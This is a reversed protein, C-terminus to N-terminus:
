LTPARSYKVMATYWITLLWAVIIPHSDRINAKAETKSGDATYCYTNLKM